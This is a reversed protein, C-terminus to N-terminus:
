RLQGEHCSKWIQLGVAGRVCSGTEKPIEGAQEGQMQEEAGMVAQLAKGVGVGGGGRFSRLGVTTGKKENQM